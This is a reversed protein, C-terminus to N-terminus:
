LTEGGSGMRVSERHEIFMNQVRPAFSRYSAYTAVLFAIGGLMYLPIFISELGEEPNDLYRPTWAMAIFLLAIVLGWAFADLIGGEADGYSNGGNINSREHMRVADMLRMFWVLVVLIMFVVLPIFVDSWSAAGWNINAADATNTCNDRVLQTIATGALSVKVNLMILFLLWCVAGVWFVVRTADDIWNSEEHRPAM